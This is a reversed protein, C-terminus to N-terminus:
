GGRKKSNMFKRAITNSWKLYKGKPASLQQRRCGKYNRGREMDMNKIWLKLSSKKNVTKTATVRGANRRVIESMSAHPWTSGTSVTGATLTGTYSEAAARSAALHAERMQSVFDSSLPFCAM